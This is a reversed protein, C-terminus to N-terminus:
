FIGDENRLHNFKPTRMLLAAIGLPKSRCLLLCSGILLFLFVRRLFNTIAGYSSLAVAQLPLAHHLLCLVQSSQMLRQKSRGTIHGFESCDIQCHRTFQAISCTLLSANLFSLVRGARKSVLRTTITRWQVQGGELM